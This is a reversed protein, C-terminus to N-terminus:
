RLRKIRPRVHHRKSGHAGVSEAVNVAVNQPTAVPLDLLIESPAYGSASQLPSETLLFIVEPSSSLLADAVNRSKM